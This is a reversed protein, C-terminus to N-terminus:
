EEMCRCPMYAKGDILLSGEIQVSGTLLVKGSLEVDGNARVRIASGGGTSLYIEGAERVGPISSPIRGLIIREEDCTRELLVEDGIKPIYLVGGPCALEASRSEGDTVVAPEAGEVTVLGVANAFSGAEQIESARQSIWM